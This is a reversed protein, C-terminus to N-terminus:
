SAPSHSRIFYHRAFNGLIALMLGSLLGVLCILKRNPSIKMEPSIPPDIIEFVYDESVNALMITKTQDEILQAFIEDLSVLSTRERQTELFRISSEAYRVDRSRLDESVRDIILDVWYKAVDPSQHEVSITILGNKKDEFVSFLKLFDAHAEQESPKSKLPARVERTWKKQNSDFIEDDYTLQRTVPDWSEVAMLDVLVEEYLHHEFFSLSKMKELAIASKSMGDGGLGGLNIGAFSALGGYQSTLRSLGGTGDGSKPALTATSQYINPLSLAVVVSVLAALGTVITILLKGDWLVQFLERLDIEEDAHSYDLQPDSM